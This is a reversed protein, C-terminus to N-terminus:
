GEEGGFHPELLVQIGHQQEEEVERHPDVGCNGEQRGVEEAPDGSGM